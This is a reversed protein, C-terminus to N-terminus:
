RAPSTRWRGLTEEVATPVALATTLRVVGDAASRVKRSAARRELWLLLDRREREPLSGLKGLARNQVVEKVFAELKAQRERKATPLIEDNLLKLASRDASSLTPAHRRPM